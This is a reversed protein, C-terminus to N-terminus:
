LCTWSGVFYSKSKGCQPKSLKHSYGQTLMDICYTSKRADGDFRMKWILMFYDPRPEEFPSASAKKTARDGEKM